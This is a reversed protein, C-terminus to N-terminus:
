LPADEEASGTANSADSADRKLTSLKRSAERVSEKEDVGAFKSYKHLIPVLQGYVRPNGALCERQELFDSEGTLNGM